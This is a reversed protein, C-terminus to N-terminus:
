RKTPTTRNIKKLTNKVASAVAKSFYEMETNELIVRLEGLLEPERRCLLYAVRICLSQVGISEQPSFMRDLCFNLLRVPFPEAPPLNDLISLLLRKSGDHTCGFLHETIEEQLPAFWSPYKESLKECVWLARWSVTREQDTTLQYIISFDEPNRSIATVLVAINLQTIPASLARRFEEAKEM